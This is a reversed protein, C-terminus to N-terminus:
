FTVNKLKWEIFVYFSSMMLQIQHKLWIEFMNLDKKARQAPNQALKM